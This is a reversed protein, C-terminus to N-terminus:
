SQPAADRCGSWQSRRVAVLGGRNSSTPGNGRPVSPPRRDDGALSSGDKFATPRNQTQAMWDDIRELLGGRIATGTSGGVTAAAVNWPDGAATFLLTRGAQDVPGGLTATFQALACLEGLAQRRARLSGSFAM